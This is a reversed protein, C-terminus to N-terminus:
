GLHHESETPDSRSSNGSAAAQVRHMADDDTYDVDKGLQQLAHEWEDRSVLARYPYGGAAGELIELDPLHHLRLADLDDRLRAHIVMANGDDAHAVISFFGIRTFIWM